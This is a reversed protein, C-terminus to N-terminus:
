LSEDFTILDSPSLYESPVSDLRRYSAVRVVNSVAGQAVACLTIESGKEWLDALEAWGARVDEFDLRNVREVLQYTVGPGSGVTRSLMCHDDGDDIVYAATGPDGDTSAWRIQQEISSQLRGHRLYKMAWLPGSPIDSPDSDSDLPTSKTPRSLIPGIGALGPSESLPLRRSRLPYIPMPSPDGDVDVEEDDISDDSNVM